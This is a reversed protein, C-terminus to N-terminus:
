LGTLSYFTSIFFKSIKNTCYLIGKYIESSLGISIVLAPLIIFLDFANRLEYHANQYVYILLCAINLMIAIAMIKAVIEIQKIKGEEFEKKVQESNM